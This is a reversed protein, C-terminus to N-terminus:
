GRTARWRHWQLSLLFITLQLSLMLSLMQTGSIVDDPDQNPSGSVGEVFGWVFFLVLPVWILGRMTTGAAAQWLQEAYEDRITRVFILVATLVVSLIGIALMWGSEGEDALLLAPNVAYRAFSVLTVVTAADLLWYFLRYRTPRTM